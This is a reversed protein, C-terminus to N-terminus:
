LPHALRVRHLSVDAPLWDIWNFFVSVKSSVVEASSLMTSALDDFSEDWESPRPFSALLDDLDGADPGAQIFSPPRPTPSQPMSPQGQELPRDDQM